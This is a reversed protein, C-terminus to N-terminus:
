MISSTDGQDTDLDGYVAAHDLGLNHGLEHMITPMPISQTALTAHLFCLGM